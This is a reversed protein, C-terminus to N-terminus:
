KLSKNLQQINKILQDLTNELEQNDEESKTETQTKQDQTLKIPGVPKKQHPLYYFFYYLLAILLTYFLLDNM